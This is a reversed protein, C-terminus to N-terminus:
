KKKDVKIEEFEATLEDVMKKTMQYCYYRHGDISKRVKKASSLFKKNILDRVIQNRHSTKIDMEDFLPAPLLMQHLFGSYTSDTGNYKTMLLEIFGETDYEIDTRSNKYLEKQEPTIPVPISYRCKESNIKDNVDKLETKIYHPLHSLVKQKFKGDINKLEHKFEHVFMLNNYVSDPLEDTKVNIPVADNSVLIVNLNNVADYQPKYKENVRQKSQGTINKLHTYQYQRNSTNEDAILLKKTAEPNFNELTGKWNCALPEFVEGIIEAFTSKGSGRVGKLVLVPLREYNSYFFKAMWQKMFHIRDDTVFLMKLWNEVFQNDAQTTPKPAFHVEVIAKDVDVKYFTSEANIDALYLQQSIGPIHKNVLLYEVLEEKEEKTKVGALVEIKRLNIEGQLLTNGVVKFQYYKQAISWFDKCGLEFRNEPLVKWFTKGCSSCYIFWNSSKDSFDVFASPNDDEHFPCHIGVKGNIESAKIEEGDSLKLSLNDDWTSSLREVGSGLESDSISSYQSISLNDGEWYADYFANDPSAFMFRAIDRVSFDSEPFLQALINQVIVKYKEPDIVKESFPIFIHFRDVAPQGNKSIQHHKSTILAYNLNNSRLRKIADNCTFGDDMDVIFGTSSLFNGGLRRGNEWIIPTYHFNKFLDEFEGSSVNMSSFNVCQDAPLEQDAVSFEFSLHKVKADTNLVGM